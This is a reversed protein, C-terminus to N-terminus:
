CSRRGGWHFSPSSVDDEGWIVIGEINGTFRAKREACSAHVQVGYTSKAILVNPSAHYKPFEAAMLHQDEEMNYDGTYLVSRGGMEIFFMAAGLVYGTNLTYFKLSPPLYDILEIKDVCSQLEAETYLVYAPSVDGSDGKRMITLQM